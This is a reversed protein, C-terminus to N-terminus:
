RPSEGSNLGASFFGREAQRTMEPLPRGAKEHASELLLQPFPVMKESPRAQQLHYGRLSHM